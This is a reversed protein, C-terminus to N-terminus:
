VPFVREREREILHEVWFFYPNNPSSGYKIRCPFLGPWLFASMWGM